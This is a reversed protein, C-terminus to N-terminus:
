NDQRIVTKPLSVEYPRYTYRLKSKQKKTPNVHIGRQPVHLERTSIGEHGKDTRIIPIWLLTKKVQRQKTVVTFNLRHKLYCPDTNWEIIVLHLYFFPSMDLFNDSVLTKIKPTVFCMSTKRTHAFIKGPEGQITTYDTNLFWNFSPWTKNPTFIIRPKHNSSPVLLNRKFPTVLILNM